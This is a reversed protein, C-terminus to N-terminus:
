YHARCKKKSMPVRSFPFRQFDLSKVQGKRMIIKDCESTVRAVTLAKRLTFVISANIIFFKEVERQSQVQLTEKAHIRDFVMFQFICM